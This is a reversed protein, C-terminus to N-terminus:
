MLPKKNEKARIVVENIRKDKTEKRKATSIWYNYFKKYSPPISNYNKLLKLKKLVTILEPPTKSSQIPKALGLKYAQLGAPTMLKDKILQKAYGLTNPSWNATKKRRVFGRMFRDEDIRKVRTDIWGFCIAEFMSEKHSITPKATHKKFMILNVGSEKNYNKSLWARWENRSKPHILKVIQDM